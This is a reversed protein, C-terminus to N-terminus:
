HIREWQLRLVGQEGDVTNPRSLTLHEADVVVNRQLNKGLYDPHVSVEPHHTVTQTAPDFHYTGAYATCGDYVAQLEATTPKGPDAILTAPRAMIQVAMQGNAQYLIYGAPQTGFRSPAPEGNPRLAVINVLRWSGVLPNSPSVATPPSGPAAPAQACGAVLVVAFALACRM